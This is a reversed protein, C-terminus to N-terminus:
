GNHQYLSPHVRHHFVGCEEDAGTSEGLRYEVHAVLQKWLRGVPAKAGTYFGAPSEM